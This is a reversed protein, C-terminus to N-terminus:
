NLGLRGNWQRVEVVMEHCQRKLTGSLSENKFYGSVSVPGIKVVFNENLKQSDSVCWKEMGILKWDGALL